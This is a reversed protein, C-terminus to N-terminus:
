WEETKWHNFYRKGDEITNIDKETLISVNLIKKKWSKMDFSKSNKSKFIIFDLFDEVEKKM